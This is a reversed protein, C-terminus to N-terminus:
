DRRSFRGARWAGPQVAEQEVREPEGVIPVTEPVYAIADMEVRMGPVSLAVGYTIRTPYPESFFTRYVENMGSFDEMETLLVQVKVVDGMSAGAAELVAKMSELTLRTQEQITEGKLKGTEPDIPGQGGVFVFDGARFGPTWPGWPAAIGDTWIEQKV